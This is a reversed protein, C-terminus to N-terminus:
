RSRDSERPSSQSTVLVEKRYRPPQNEQEDVVYSAAVEPNTTTTTTYIKKVTVKKVGKTVLTKGTGDEDEYEYHEESEETNVERHHHDEDSEELGDASRKKLLLLREVEEPSIEKGDKYATSVYSEGALTQERIVIKGSEVDKVESIEGQEVVHHNGKSSNSLLRDYEEQDVEKGNVMYTRSVTKTVKINSAPEDETKKVIVIGSPNEADVFQEPSFKNDDVITKTHYVVRQQPKIHLRFGTGDPKKTEQHRDVEDKKIVTTVHGSRVSTTITEPFEKIKHAKGNVPHVPEETVTTKIMPPLPPEEDMTIDAVDPEKLTVAPEKLTVAAPENPPKKSDDLLTETTTSKRKKKHVISRLM